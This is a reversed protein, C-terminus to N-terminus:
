LRLPGGASASMETTLDVLNDGAKPTFLPHVKEAVTSCPNCMMGIWAGRSNTIPWSAPGRSNIAGVSRCGSEILDKLRGYHDRHFHSIV